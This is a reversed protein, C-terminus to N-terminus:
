YITTSSRLVRSISIISSLNITLTGTTPLVASVGFGGPNSGFKPTGVSWLFNEKTPPSEWIKKLLTTVWPSKTYRCYQGSGAGWTLILKFLINLAQKSHVCLMLRVSMLTGLIDGLYLNWKVKTKTKCYEISFQKVAQTGPKRPVGAPIVVAACGELANQLDDPGQHSTVKLECFM